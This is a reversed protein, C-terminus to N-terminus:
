DSTRLKRVQRLDQGFGNLWWDLMATDVVTAEIFYEDGNETVQQDASLKADLLHRGASKKIWFSLRVKEGNGFAFHGDADYRSLDFDRPYDFTHGTRSAQHIRHMALNRLDEFGEFRCVLYMCPGQQALGLPMVQARTRRGAANEYDVDLMQNEYLAESVADLVGPRIEPPLLPQRTAVVRVKRLWERERQANSAPGLNRAAQDFFAQMARNLKQPLLDRIHQHALHLLLSEQATLMPLSIGEAREKWCYGYPKSRDDREIDFKESLTDLHRQISRLSRDMGQASLQSQIEAATVKGRRPIRKLIEILLIGTDVGDERKSAM